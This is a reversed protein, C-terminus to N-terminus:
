VVTWTGVSTMVEYETASFSRIEVSSGVANIEMYGATASISSGHRITVGTPMKIRLLHAARVHFRYDIDASASPTPVTFIVTGSAGQNTFLGGSEGVTLTRDSTSNTRRNSSTTSHTWTGNSWTGGVKSVYWTTANLCKITVFSGIETTEIYGAAATVNNGCRITATGQANIRIGNATSCYFSFETYHPEAVALGSITPLNIGVMASAGTDHFLMGAQTRLTIAYPSGIGDTVARQNQYGFNWSRHWFPTHDTSQCYQFGIVGNRGFTDSTDSLDWYQNFLFDGRYFGSTPTANYEAAGIRMRNAGLMAWRTGPAMWLVGAGDTHGDATFALMTRVGLFAHHFNYTSALQGGGGYKLGFVNTGSSVDFIPTEGADYPRLFRLTQDRAPDNVTFPRDNAGSLARIEKNWYGSGHTGGELLGVWEVPNQNSESYCGIMTSAQNTGKYSTVGNSSTHVGEFHNALFSQDFCGAVRNGDYLGGSVRCNNSDEDQFHIGNQKNSGGRCNIFTANSANTSRAIVNGLIGFGNGNFEEVFVNTLIAPADLHVGNAVRATFTATNSTITGGENVSAWNPETAATTGGTTVEYVFRGDYRYPEVYDWVVASGTGDSIGTGTTTPGSNQSTTGGTTCVYINNNNVRIDGAIVTRNRDWARYARPVVVAGLAYLTSPAFVTASAVSADKKIYLGSIVSSAGDGGSPSTIARPIRFCPKTGSYFRFEVARGDWGGLGIIECKRNVYLTDTVKYAVSPRPFVVRISAGGLSGAADLAAQIAVTDDATNDGVAGYARVDIEYDARNVGREFQVWERSSKGRVTMADRSSSGLRMLTNETGGAEAPHVVRNVTTAGDFTIVNNHGHTHDELAFESTNVGVAGSATGINAPTNNAATPQTITITGTGGSVSASVGNGVFDLTTATGQLAGEDEVDVGSGGGGGGPITVTIVGSGAVATVGAGVFNLANGDGVPSGEDQAAVNNAQADAGKLNDFGSM